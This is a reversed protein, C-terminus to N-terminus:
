NISGGASEIKEKATESFDCEVISVEIEIEGSGLIKVGFKTNSILGIKKLKEPNIEDGSEFKNNIDRLNVVEPNTDHSTFGGLKPLKLIDDKIGRYFTGSKGGARARQGKIGRGCYTGKGSANGRGVRTKEENSGEAPKITHAQLAM